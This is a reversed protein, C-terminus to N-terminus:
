DPFIRYDVLWKAAIEAFDPLDIKCNRNFDWDYLDYIELDCISEVGTVRNYEEAIEQKTLAYNYIRFDDIRANLYPVDAGVAKGIYNYTKKFGIPSQLTLGQPSKNETGCEGNLYIRGYGDEVTVVVYYWVEPDIESEVDLERNHRVSQGGEDITYWNWESRAVDWGGQRPDNQRYLMTLFFAENANDGFDWVRNWRDRDNSNILTTPRVWCAITIDEYHAVTTDLIRAWQLKAGSPNVLLLNKDILSYEDSLSAGGMLQMDKGSIIDPTFLDAGVTYTTEFPYYSKLEGVRLEGRSSSQASLGTATEKGICYYFGADDPQANFVTLTDTDVGAYETGNSLAVAPDGEKYWQFTDVKSSMTLGLVADKGIRAVLKAPTVNGLLPGEQITTFSWIPSTYALEVKTGNPDYAYALVSWFYETSWTLNQPYETELTITYQGPSVSMGDVIKYIESLNPDPGFLVDVKVINENTVTFILDNQPSNLEVAVLGTGDKPFPNVISPLEAIQVSDIAFRDETGSVGDGENKFRLFLEGSTSGIYQLTVSDTIYKGVEMAPYSVSVSDILTVGRAGEIDVDDSGTFSGDSEYISVTLVLDRPIVPEQAWGGEVAGIDYQIQLAPVGETNYGISQYAWCDDDAMGMYRTSTPSYLLRLYTGEEEFWDPVDERIGLVEFDGNTISLASAM